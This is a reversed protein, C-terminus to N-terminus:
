GRLEDVALGVELEGGSEFVEESLEAGVRAGDGDGLPLAHQAQEDLIDEDSWFPDDDPM